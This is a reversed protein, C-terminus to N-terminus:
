GLASRTKEEGGQQEYHACGSTSRKSLWYSGSRWAGIERSKCTDPSTGGIQNKPIVKIRALRTAPGPLKKVLAVYSDGNEEYEAAKKNAIAVGVV